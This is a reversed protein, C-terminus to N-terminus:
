SESGGGMGEKTEKEETEKVTEKETERKTEREDGVMIREATVELRGEQLTAWLYIRRSLPILRSVVLDRGFASLRSGFERLRERATKQAPRQTPSQVSSQVSSQIPSQTSSQSPLLRSLLSPLSLTSLLNRLLTRLLARWSPSPTATSAGSVVIIDSQELEGQGGQAAQAVQGGQAVAVGSVSFDATGAVAAGTAMLPMAPMAAAVAPLPSLQQAAEGVWVLGSRARERVVLLWLLLLRMFPFLAFLVWIRSVRSMHVQRFALFLVVLFRSLLLLVGGVATAVALVSVLFWGRVGPIQLGAFVVVTALVPLALAFVLLLFLFRPYFMSGEKDGELMRLALLPTWLGILPHFSWLGWWGRHGRERFFYVYMFAAVAGELIFALPWVIAAGLALWVWLGRYPILPTLLDFPPLEFILPDM